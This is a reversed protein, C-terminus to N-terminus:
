MRKKEGVPKMEEPEPQKEEHVHEIEELQEGDYVPEIEKLQNGEHVPQIEMTQKGKHIKDYHIMLMQKASFCRKCVVCEFPKLSTANRYNKIAINSTTSDKRNCTLSDHVKLIHKKLSISTKYKMDCQLCEFPNKGEHFRSIHKKLSIQTTVKMSCYKCQHLDIHHHVSRVHKRLNERSSLVFDCKLRENLKDHFLSIHNTLSELNIYINNCIPCPYRSKENPQLSYKRETNAGFIKKEYLEVHKINSDSEEFILNNEDLTTETEDQSSVVVKNTPKIEEHVFEKGEHVYEKGEHVYKEGEHVYEKGELVYEKGEDEHVNEKGERVYEKEKNIYEKKYLEQNWEFRQFYNKKKVNSSAIELNKKRIHFNEKEDFISEKVDDVAVHVCSIHTFYRQKSSFTLQCIGCDFQNKIGYVTTSGDHM